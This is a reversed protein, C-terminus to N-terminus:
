TYGTARIDILIKIRPGPRCPPSATYTSRIEVRGAARETGLKKTMDGAGLICRYFVSYRVEETRSQRRQLPGRDWEALMDAVLLRRHGFRVRGNGRSTRARGSPPPTLKPNASTVSRADINGM